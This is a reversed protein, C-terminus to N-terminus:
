KCKGPIIRWKVTECYLDWDKKYKNKCKTEDRIERHVLLVAFYVVYFYPFIDDFGLSHRILYVFLLKM